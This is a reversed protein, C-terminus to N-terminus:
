LDPSPLPIYTAGNENMFSHQPLNTMHVQQAQNNIKAFLLRLVKERDEWSLDQIDVKGGSHGEAGKRGAWEAAKEMQVQKLASVLFSEVDSRQLLVEHALRRINKLERSKLKVLRRLAEQEQESEAIQALARQTIAERERQFDTMLTSLSQELSYVKQQGDKIEKAQKAGRKAYQEEIEMKLNLERQLKVREDETTRMEAQLEDTEQIHLRLEEAMRRNQQLIRKVSADLREDIDEEAGKKLEDLRQEYEHKLRANQEIYKRELEQSQTELEEKLEENEARLRVLENEVDDKRQKFDAINELNGQLEVVLAQLEEERATAEDVLLRVAEEKDELLRTRDSDWDVETQQLQAELEGIRENKSLIERRLYETVEYSENAANEREALLQKNEEVLSNYRAKTEFLAKKKRQNESLIIYQTATLHDSGPGAVEEPAPKEAAEKKEKKPPM